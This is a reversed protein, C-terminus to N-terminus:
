SKEKQNTQLEIVEVYADMEFDILLLYVGAPLGSIHYATDHYSFSRLLHHKQDYISLRKIEGQEPNEDVLLINGSDSVCVSVHVGGGHYVASLLWLHISCFLLTLSILRWPHKRSIKMTHILMLFSTSFILQRVQLFRHTGVFEFQLVSAIPM